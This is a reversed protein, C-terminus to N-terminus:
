GSAAQAKPAELQGLVLTTLAGIIHALDASKLKRFTRLARWGDEGLMEVLIYQMAAEQGRTASIELYELAIEAGPEPDVTYERDGIYFLPVRRPEGDGAPTLRLVPIDPVTAPKVATVTATM